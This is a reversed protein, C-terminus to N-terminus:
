YSQRLRSLKIKKPSKGKSDMKLSGRLVVHGELKMGRKMETWKPEFSRGEAINELIIFLTTKKCKLGSVLKM